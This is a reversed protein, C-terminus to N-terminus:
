SVQKENFSLNKVRQAVSLGQRATTLTAQISGNLRQAFQIANWSTSNADKAHQFALAAFGQAETSRNEFDQLIQLMERAESHTDTALQVADIAAKWASHVENLIEQGMAEANSVRSSLNRTKEITVQAQLTLNSSLQTLNNTKSILKHAQRTADMAASMVIQIVVEMNNPDLLRVDSLTDNAIFFVFSAEEFVRYATFNVLDRLAKIEDLRMTLNSLFIDLKNQDTKSSEAVSEARQVISEANEVKNKIGDATANQQAAVVTFNQAVMSFSSVLSSLDGSIFEAERVSPDVTSNLLRHSSLIAERVLRILQETTNKNREVATLNARLEQVDPAVETELVHELQNLTQNLERIENWLRAETIISQDAIFVLNKTSNISSNMRQAFTVDGIRGDQLRELTEELSGM